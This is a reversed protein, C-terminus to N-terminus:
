KLIFRKILRIIIFLFSIFLKFINKRTLGFLMENINQVSKENVKIKSPHKITIIEYRKQNNFISGNDVTHTADDNFGINSILNLSPNICLGNNKFITYTWQYDWTDIEHNSMQLFINIWYKKYNNNHFIKNIIKKSIFNDLDTINYSYHDWARKWSAWGWCHQIRAFYYSYETKTVTLPNNGAIHFIRTDDKYKELLEKCYLFFSKSPLCDDELIIGMEENKFFWTIAGSVAKGCGLNEDRFLTKIECNWDISQIIFNRVSEVKKNEGERNDRPGDSAIYLKLPAIKRIEEFVLQTTDLRNFVLFLIPIDFSNM